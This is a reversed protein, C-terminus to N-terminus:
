RTFSAAPRYEASRDGMHRAFWRDRQHRAVRDAVRDLFPLRRRATEAAFIFPFQLLPHLAWLGAGPLRNRRYTWPPLFFRTYGRHIGDSWRARLRDVLPGDDPPAFARAYSQCLERGDDGARHAAKLITIYVLQFAERLSAPYWRPRVGMLHGVYRWFHMMAEIERRTPRFGMARMALGPAFSGGMLTLLADAQSIPVGWADLDWEPHDLLRKRVFVHM